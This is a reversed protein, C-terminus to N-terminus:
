LLSPFRTVHSLTWPNSDRGRQWKGFLWPTESTPRSGRKLIKVVPYGPIASISVFLRSYFYISLLLHFISPPLM